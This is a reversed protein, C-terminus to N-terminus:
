RIAMVAKNFSETQGTITAGLRRLITGTPDIKTHDMERFMGYMSAYHLMLHLGCPSLRLPVHRSVFDDRYAVITERFGWLPHFSQWCRALQQLHGDAEWSEWKEVTLGKATSYCFCDSSKYKMLYFNGPHDSGKTLAIIELNDPMLGLLAARIVLKSGAEAKLWSLFGAENNM